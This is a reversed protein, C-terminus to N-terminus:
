AGPAKEDTNDGSLDGTPSDDLNEELSTGSNGDGAETPTPNADPFAAGEIPSKKLQGASDNYANNDENKRERDALQEQEKTSYASMESPTTTGM